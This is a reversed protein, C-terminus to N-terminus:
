GHSRVVDVDRIIIIDLIHVELRVANNVNLESRGFLLFIVMLVDSFVFVARNKRSQRLGSCVVVAQM